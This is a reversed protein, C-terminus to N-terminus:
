QGRRTKRIQRAFVGPDSTPLECSRRECVYATAVGEQVVKDELLPVTRQQTELDKGQIVVALVRNPLFVRRLEGLLPEADGRSARTVIVVEKPTDLTFDLALLMESM